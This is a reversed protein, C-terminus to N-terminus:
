ATRGPVRSKALLRDLRDLHTVTVTVAGFDVEVIGRFVFPGPDFLVHGRTRHVEPFLVTEILGDGDDFTAFQMPEDKATHVPKATTLMGACLVSRGAHRPLESARVPRFRRLEEARLAMPHCDTAFGLLEYETERRREPTYEPLTPRYSPLVTLLAGVTKGDYGGAAQDVAWLM